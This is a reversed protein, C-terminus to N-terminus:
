APRMDFPLQTLECVPDNCIAATAEELFGCLHPTTPTAGFM